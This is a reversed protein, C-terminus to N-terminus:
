RGPVDGRPIFSGRQVDVSNNKEQQSRTATSFARAVQLLRWPAAPL